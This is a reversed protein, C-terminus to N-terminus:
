NDWPSKLNLEKHFFWRRFNEWCRRCLYHVTDDFKVFQSTPIDEEDNCRCCKELKAM